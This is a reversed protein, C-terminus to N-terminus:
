AAGEAPRKGTHYPKRRSVTLLVAIAAHVFVQAGEADTRGALPMVAVLLYGIAIMGYAVKIRHPVRWHMRNVCLVVRVLVYAAIVTQAALWATM